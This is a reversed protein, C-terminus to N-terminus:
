ASLDPIGDYDTRGQPFPPRTLVTAAAHDSSPPSTPAPPPTSPPSPHHLLETIAEPVRALLTEAPALPM